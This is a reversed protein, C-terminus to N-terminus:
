RVSNGSVFSEKLYVRNETVGLASEKRPLVRKLRILNSHHVESNLSGKLRVDIQDKIRSGM